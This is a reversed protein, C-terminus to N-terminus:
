VSLRSAFRGLQASLCLVAVGCVGAPWHLCMWGVGGCLRCVGCPQIDLSVAVVM